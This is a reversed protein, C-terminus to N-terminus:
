GCSSVTNMRYKYLYPPQSSYVATYIRRLYGYVTRALELISLSLLVLHQYKRLHLRVHHGAPGMVKAVPVVKMVHTCHVGDLTSAM